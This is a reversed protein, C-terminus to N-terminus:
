EPIKPLPIWYRVEPIQKRTIGINGLYIGDGVYTAMSWKRYLSSWVLVEERPEPTLHAAERALTSLKGM